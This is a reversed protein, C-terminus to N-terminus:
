SQIDIKEDFDETINSLTSEHPETEDTTQVTTVHTQLKSNTTDQYIGISHRVRANAGKRKDLGVTDSCSKRRGLKPSKARTPPAKLENFLVLWSPTMKEFSAENYCSQM